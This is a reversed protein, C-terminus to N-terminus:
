ESFEVSLVEGRSGGRRIGRGKRVRRSAGLIVADLERRDILIKGKVPRLGRLDGSALLKRISDQSLGSYAAASAVGFFRQPVPGVQGQAQQSGVIAEVQAAAVEAREVAALLREVLGAAALVPDTIPLADSV